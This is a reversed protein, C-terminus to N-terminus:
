EHQEENCHDCHQHNKRACIIASIAAPLACCFIHLKFGLLIVVGAGGFSLAHHLSFGFCYHVGEEIAEFLVTTIIMVVVFRFVKQKM